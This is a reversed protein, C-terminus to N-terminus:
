GEAEKEVFYRMRVNVAEGTLNSTLQERVAIYGDAWEVALNIEELDEINYQKM